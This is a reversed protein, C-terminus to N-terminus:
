GVGCLRRTEALGVYCTSRSRGQPDALEPTSASLASLPKRPWACHWCSVSRVLVRIDEDLLRLVNHGDANTDAMNRLNHQEVYCQVGLVEDMQALEQLLCARDSKAKVIRPDEAADAERKVQQSDAPAGCRAVVHRPPPPPVVRQSAASPTPPVAASAAPAAPEATPAAPTAAPGAAPEVHELKVQQVSLPPAKNTPPQSVAPPAAAPVAPASASSPAASTISEAKKAPPAQPALPRPQPPAKTTAKAQSVASDVNGSLLRRLNQDGAEGPKPKTETEHVRIIHILEAPNVNWGLADYCAQHCNAVLDAILQIM